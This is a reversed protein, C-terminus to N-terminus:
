KLEEDIANILDKAKQTKQDETQEIYWYYQNKLSRLFYLYEKDNKLENYNNPIM